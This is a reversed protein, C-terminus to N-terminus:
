NLIQDMSDFAFTDALCVQNPGYLNWVDKESDTEIEVEIEREMEIKEDINESNLTWLCM